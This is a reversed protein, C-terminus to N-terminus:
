VEFRPWHIARELPNEFIYRMGRGGIEALLSWLRGFDSCRITGPNQGIAGGGREGFLCLWVDTYGTSLIYAKCLCLGCSTEPDGDNPQLVM